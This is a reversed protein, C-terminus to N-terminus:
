PTGARQLFPGAHAKIIEVTIAGVHKYIVRGNADLIFTEPLGSVGYDISMRGTLDEGNPFTQGFARIFQRASTSRDQINIGIVTLGRGRLTEWARQLEPAEEYCPACWSAWFNMVVVHGRYTAATVSGGEFLPLTFPPAPQGLLPSPIRRPDRGLGAVLVVVFPVVLALVVVWTWPHLHRRTVEPSSTAM